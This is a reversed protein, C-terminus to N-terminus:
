LGQFLRPRGLREVREGDQGDEWVGVAGLVLFLSFSISFHYLLDAGPVWVESEIARVVHTSPGSFDVATGRGRTPWMGDPGSSVINGRSEDEPSFTSHHVALTSKSGMLKSIQIADWSNLHQTSTLAYHNLTIGLISRLFSLSSGTSIPLCSLDMPGYRDAIEALSIILWSISIRTYAELEGQFAPCMALHMEAKPAGAYRYGTDSCVISRPQETGKRGLMDTIDGGHKGLLSCGSDM